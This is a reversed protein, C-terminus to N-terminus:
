PWEIPLCTRNQWSRAYTESDGNNMGATVQMERWVGSGADYEEMSRVAVNESSNGGFVCVRGERVFVGHEARAEKMGGGVVEWAPTEENVKLRECSRLPQVRWGGTVFLDGGELVVAACDRRPEVLGPCAEWAGRDTHFAEVTNSVARAYVSWGGIYYIVGGIVATGYSKRRTPPPPLPTAEQTRLDVRLFKKSNERDFGYLGDGVVVPKFIRQFIVADAGPLGRWVGRVVDLAVTTFTDQFRVKYLVEPGAAVGCEMIDKGQLAAPPHLQRLTNWRPDYLQLHLAYRGLSDKVANFFLVFRRANRKKKVPVSPAGAGPHADSPAGIRGSARQICSRLPEEASISLIHSVDSLQKWDLENLLSDLTAENWRTASDFRCWSIVVDYLEKESVIQVDDHALVEMLEEATCERFDDTMMLAPLHKVVVRLATEKLGAQHHASGIRWLRCANDVNLSGVLATASQQTIRELQLYSAAILYREANEGSIVLPFADDSVHHLLATVAGGDVWPPLTLRVSAATEERFGGRAPALMAAFYDSARVLRERPVALSNRGILLTVHDEESNELSDM